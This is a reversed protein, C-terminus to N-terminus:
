RLQGNLPLVKRGALLYALGEAKQRAPQLVKQQREPNGRIPQRAKAKSLTHIKNINEPERSGIITEESRSDGWTQSM